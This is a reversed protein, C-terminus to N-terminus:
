DYSVDLWEGNSALLADLLRQANRGERPTILGTETKGAHRPTAYMLTLVLQTHIIYYCLIYLIM